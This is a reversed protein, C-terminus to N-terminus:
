VQSPAADMIFQLIYNSQTSPQIYSDLEHWSKFFSDM